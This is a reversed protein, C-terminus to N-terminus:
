NIKYKNTCLAIVLLVLKTITHDIIYNFHLQKFNRIYKESKKIFNLPLSYIKIVLTYYLTYM